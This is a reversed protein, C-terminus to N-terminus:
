VSAVAHLTVDQREFVKCE